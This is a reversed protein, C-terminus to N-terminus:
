IRVNMFIYGLGLAAEDEAAVVEFIADAVGAAGTATCGGCGSGIGAGEGGVEAASVADAEGADARGERPAENKDPSAKCDVM